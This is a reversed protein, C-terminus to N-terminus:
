RLSLSTLLCNFERFIQAHDRRLRFNEHLANGRLKSSFSFNNSSSVIINMISYCQEERVCFKKTPLWNIIFLKAMGVFFAVCFPDIYWLSSFRSIREWQFFIEHFWSKLSKKLLFTVKVVNQWFHTLSSRLLKWM